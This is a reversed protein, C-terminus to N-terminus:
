STIDSYAMFQVDDTQCLTETDEDSFAVDFPSFDPSVRAPQDFLQQTQMFFEDIQSNNLERLLESAFTTGMSVVKLM